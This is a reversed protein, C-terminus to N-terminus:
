SPILFMHLTVFTPRGTNASTLSSALIPLVMDHGLLLLCHHDSHKDAHRLHHLAGAYVFCNEPSIFSAGPSASALIIGPSDYHYSDPIGKEDFWFRFHLLDIRIAVSSHIDVSDWSHGAM